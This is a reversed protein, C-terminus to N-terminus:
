SAATETSITDKIQIGAIYKLTNINLENNLDDLIKDGQKFNKILGYMVFKSNSGHYNDYLYKILSNEFKTAEEFTNMLTKLPQYTDKNGRRIISYGKVNDDVLKGYPKVNQRDILLNKLQNLTENIYFGEELLEVTYLDKLEESLVKKIQPITTKDPNFIEVLKKEDASFRHKIINKAIIFIVSPDNIDFLPNDILDKISQIYDTTSKIKDIQHIKSYIDSIQESITSDIKKRNSDIFLKIGRLTALKQTIPTTNLIDFQQKLGNINSSYKEFKRIMNEYLDSYLNDFLSFKNSIPYDKTTDPINSLLNSFFIRKNTESINSMNIYETIYKTLSMNSNLYKNFFTLPDESGPLDIFIIKSNKGKLTFIIEIASRSSEPNLPTRKIKRTKIRNYTITNLIGKDYSDYQGRKIMNIRDNDIHIRYKDVNFDVTAKGYYENIEVSQIDDKCNEYVIDILGNVESNGLLVSTKGSGSAGYGFVILNADRTKKINNIKNLLTFHYIRENQSSTNDERNIIKNFYSYEKSSYNLTNSVTLDDTM